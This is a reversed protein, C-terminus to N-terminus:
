RGELSELKWDAIEHWSSARSAGERSAIEQGEKFVIFGGFDMGGEDFSLTFTLTPWRTSAHKIVPIPPAWATNFRYNIISSESINDPNLKLISSFCESTDWKTGWNEARWEYWDPLNTRSSPFTIPEPRIKQFSLKTDDSENIVTDRFNEVQSRKGSVTLCCECWNPM